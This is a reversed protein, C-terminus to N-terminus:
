LHPGGPEPTPHQGDGITPVEDGLNSPDRGVRESITGGEERRDGLPQADPSEPRGGSPEDGPRSTDSLSTM